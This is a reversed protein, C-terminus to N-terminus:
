FMSIFLIDLQLKVQTRFCGYTAIANATTVVGRDAKVDVIARASKIGYFAGASKHKLLARAM